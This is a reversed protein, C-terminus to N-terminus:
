ATGRRLDQILAVIERSFRESSFQAARERAAVSMRDCTSADDALRRVVEALSARDRSDILFGQVGDTVLEAPGGVPPAIVPIGFAMAELLTLGFTEVWADVRSLNLVLSAKAYYAPTDTTRPHVALNPPAPNAALYRATADPAENVVLVFRIRADDELDEALSVLEPVGKYDRLSAIMLVGFGGERHHQYRSASAVRLFESDLANHICRARVGRIPLARAHARSVYVTEAACWRAMSVLIRRLVRPRIDIEHLHCIVKRGTIRGYLLAGFPLLTNVYVIADRAITRDRLLKFFLRAQSALYSALTASRRERRRYGYEVTPIGADSLFGDGPGGVYLKARGLKSSVSRIAARLVLPSGSRDNLLHVFVIGCSPDGGDAASRRLDPARGGSDTRDM